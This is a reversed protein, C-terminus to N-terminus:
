GGQSSKLPFRRRLWGLADDRSTISGELQADELLTLINTFLPGPQYGIRILDDGTLLRAPRIEEPGLEALQKRCFEWNTLDGHSALCDLRHLELHDSFYPQRLFRKLTSQKMRQVDKFRLHDRVLDVVRETQENSLRLRGCIAETMRAGVECHNDFRIRERVTFTPPKGVDHLLAALALEFSPRELNKLLLMTHTLVDGEPHFEKPQEVGAMAAAEPLIADLLGTRHLLSFGGSPNPGTLMKKIEDRIREASIQRIQGALDRIAAETGPEIAYGFRAAFRVARLLRLKDEEFRERPDGIARIVGAAIDRRGDVYDIIEKKLPDYFMGNITFDRRAADERDDSYHVAAPHRGDLYRGDSRFTTVEFEFGNEIVKVVGFSVGVPVTKPFLKMVQEPRADTAVDYDQPEHGMVLDRVSGGAWYSRFGAERLVKVIEVAKDGMASMIIYEVAVAVPNDGM